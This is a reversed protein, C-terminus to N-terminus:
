YRHRRPKVGPKETTRDSRLQNARIALDACYESPRPRFLNEIFVANYQMQRDQEFRLDEARQTNSRINDSVHRTRPSDGWYSTAGVTLVHNSGWNSAFRADFGFNDFEQQDINTTAPEDAPASFQASRRSFRDQYSYWVNANLTADASIQQEYTFNAIVREVEIRNFPTLTQNRDEDFEQNSLRGAEGSDSQYLDLDFGLRIDNFGEYSVGFHGSTVEYDENDRPGDAERHDLTAM